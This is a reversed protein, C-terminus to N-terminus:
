VANRRRKLLLLGLGGAAVSGLTSPEPVSASGSVLQLGNLRGPNKYTPTGTLPQPIIEITGTASATVDFIVYNANLQFDGSNTAPAVTQGNSGTAPSATAGSGFTFLTGASNYSGDAAYLYLQYHGNDTLGSLTLNNGYGAVSSSYTRLLNNAPSTAAYTTYMSQFNYAADVSTTAGTSTLLNNTTGPTQSGSPVQIVNWVPSTVGDGTFAGQHGNFSAPNAGGSGVLQIDVAEVSGYSTGALSVTAAVTAVAIAATALFSGRRMSSTKFSM